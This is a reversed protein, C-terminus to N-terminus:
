LKLQKDEKGGRTQGMIDGNGYSHPQYSSKDVAKDINGREGAQDKTSVRHHDTTARHGTDDSLRGPIALIIEPATRRKSPHPPFSPM